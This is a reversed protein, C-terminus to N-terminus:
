KFGAGMIHAKFYLHVALLIGFLSCPKLCSQDPDNKHFIGDPGVNGTVYEFASTNRDGHDRQRLSVM